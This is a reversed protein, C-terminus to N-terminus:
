YRSIYKSCRFGACTYNKAKLGKIDQLTNAVGSGLAQMSNIRQLQNGSVKVDGFMSALDNSSSGLALHYLIDEDM